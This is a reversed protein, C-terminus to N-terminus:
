VICLLSLVPVTAKVTSKESIAFLSPVCTVATALSASPPTVNSLCAGDNVATVMAELLEFSAVRATTLSTMVTFKVESSAIFVPASGM